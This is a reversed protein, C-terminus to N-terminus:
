MSKVFGTLRIVRTIPFYRAHFIAGIAALSAGITLMAAMVMMSDPYGDMLVPVGIIVALEALLALGLIVYLRRRRIHKLFEYGTVVRLKEFESM